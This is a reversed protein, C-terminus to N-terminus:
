ELKLGMVLIDDTQERTGKWENITMELISMQEHMPLAHIELLLKNLKKNLFKTNDKGGFQDKYGDSFLYLCLPHMSRSRM